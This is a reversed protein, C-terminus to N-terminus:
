FHPSRQSNRRFIASMFNYLSIYINQFYIKRPNWCALGYEFLEFSSQFRDIIGFIYLKKEWCPVVKKSWVCVGEGGMEGCWVEGPVM